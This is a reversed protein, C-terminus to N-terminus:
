FWYGMRQIVIKDFNNSKIEWYQRMGPTMKKFEEQPIFLTSPDYEPHSPERQEKDMINEPLTFWPGEMIDEKEDDNQIDDLM